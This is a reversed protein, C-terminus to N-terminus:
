AYGDRARGTRRPADYSRHTKRYVEGQRQAHRHQPKM